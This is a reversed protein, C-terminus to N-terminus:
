HMMINNSITFLRFYIWQIMILFVNERQNLYINIDMSNKDTRHLEEAFVAAGDRTSLDERGIIRGWM